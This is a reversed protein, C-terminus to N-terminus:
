VRRKLREVYDDLDAQDILTRTGIRLKRVEGSDDSILKQMTRKGIGLYAAAEDVKLLRRQVPTASM